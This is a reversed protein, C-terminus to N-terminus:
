RFSELLLKCNGIRLAACFYVEGKPSLLFFFFFGLLSILNRPVNLQQMCM